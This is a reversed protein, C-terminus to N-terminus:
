AAAGNLGCSGTFIPIGIDGQDPHHGKGARPEYHHALLAPLRVCLRDLPHLTLRGRRCSLISLCISVPIERESGPSVDIIAAKV